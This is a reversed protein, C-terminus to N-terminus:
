NPEKYFIGDQDIRKIVVMSNAARRLEDHVRLWPMLIEKHEVLRNTLSRSRAFLVLTLINTAALVGIAILEIM